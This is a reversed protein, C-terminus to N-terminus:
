PMSPECCYCPGAPAVLAAAAPHGCLFWCSSKDGRHKSGSDCIGWAMILQWALFFYSDCQVFAWPSGQHAHPSAVCHTPGSAGLEGEWM